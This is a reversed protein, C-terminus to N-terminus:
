FLADNANLYFNLCPKDKAGKRNDRSRWKQEVESAQVEDKSAAAEGQIEKSKKAEGRQTDDQSTHPSPKPQTQSSIPFRRTTPNLFSVPGSPAGEYHRPTFHHKFHDM